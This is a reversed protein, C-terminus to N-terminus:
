DISTTAFYLLPDEPGMCDPDLVWVEAVSPEEGPLVIIAAPQGGWTGMDIALPTVGSVGLYGELCAQAAAPSADLAVASREPEASQDDGGSPATDLSEPSPSTVPEAPM